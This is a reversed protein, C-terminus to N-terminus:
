HGAQLVSHGCWSSSLAAILLAAYLNLADVKIKDCMHVIEQFLICISPLVGSPSSVSGVADAPAAAQQACSRREALGAATGGAHMLLGSMLGQRFECNPSNAAEFLTLADTM